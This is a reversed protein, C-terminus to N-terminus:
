NLGWLYAFIHVRLRELSLFLHWIAEWLHTYHLWNYVDDIYTEWDDTSGGNLLSYM